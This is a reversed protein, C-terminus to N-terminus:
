FGLAAVTVVVVTGIIIPEPKSGAVDQKYPLREVPSSVPRNSWEAVCRAEMAMALPWCCSRAVGM